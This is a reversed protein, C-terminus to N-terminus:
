GVVVYLKHLSSDYQDDNGDIVDDGNSDYRVDVNFIYTGPEVSGKPAVLVAHIKQENKELSFEDDSYLLWKDYLGDINTDDKRYAEDFSVSVKFKKETLVNLVGVGFIDNEGVNIKKTNVPVAVMQGASLLSTIQDETERDLQEKLEQATGFFRKMLSLSLVLIVLIIIMMVIFNISLEIGRKNM